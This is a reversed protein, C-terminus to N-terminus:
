APSGHWPTIGTDTGVQALVDGFAEEDILETRDIVIGLTLSGEKLKYRFRAEVKYPPAGKFPTLGLELKAPISLNGAQGARATVTEDYALRIEGTDGRIASRYAADKKVDLTRALDLMDAASPNVVERAHAELFEAFDHQSCWAGSKSVWAEWEPTRRLTLVARHDSWGALPPVLADPPLADVEAAPGNLVATVTLASQKAWVTTRGAEGHTKVYACFGDVTEFSATGVKRQPREAYRTLDIVEYRAGPPLRVGIQGAGIQAPDLGDPRAVLIGLNAASQVENETPDSM